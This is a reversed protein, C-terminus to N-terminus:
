FTVFLFYRPISFAVDLLNRHADVLFAIQQFTYFSIAIPLVIEGFQLGGEFLANFNEAIFGAYKFYGLLGLNFLIGAVLVVKRRGASGGGGALYRGFLINIAISGVM